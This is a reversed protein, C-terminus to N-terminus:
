CTVWSSPFRKGPVSGVRERFLRAGPSPFIKGGRNILASTIQRLAVLYSEYIMQLVPPIPSFDVVGGVWPTPQQPLCLNSIRINEWLSKCFVVVNSAIASKMSPLNEPESVSQECYILSSHKLWYKHLSTVTRLGDSSQNDCKCSCYRFSFFSFLARLLRLCQASATTFRLCFNRVAASGRGPVRCPWFKILQLHDSYM